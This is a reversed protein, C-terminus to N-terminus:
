HLSFRGPRDRAVRNSIGKVAISDIERILVKMRSHIRQETEWVGLPIDANCSIMSSLHDITSQSNKLQRAATVIM